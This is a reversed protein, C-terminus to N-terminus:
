LDLANPREYFTLMTRGYEKEKVRRCGAFEEPLPARREHQCILWGDPALLSWLEPSVAWVALAEQRYPPDLFILDFREDRAMLKGVATAADAALVVAEAGTPDLLAANRKLVPAINRDAEVLVVRRCGRSYAELGVSGAGAYLDLFSAGALRPALVNFLAQRVRSLTPRSLKGPPSELRQRRFRGALISM